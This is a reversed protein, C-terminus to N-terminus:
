AEALDEQLKDQGSLIGVAYWIGEYYFNHRMLEDDKEYEDANKVKYWYDIMLEYDRELRFDEHVFEDPCERAWIIYKFGNDDHMYYIAEDLGSDFSSNFFLEPIEDFESVIKKLKKQSILMEM